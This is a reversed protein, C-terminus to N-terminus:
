NSTAGSILSRLPFIRELARNFSSLPQESVYLIDNPRLEMAEAVILRSTNLANLHYAIIPDDGRLLYVESRNADVSSLAGNETFLADALTERKSPSINFKTPSIGAGLIFVKDKKYPLYEVVVRDNNKIYIEKSPDLLLSSFLFSKVVGNRLLNIKTM